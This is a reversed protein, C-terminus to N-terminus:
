FSGKVNFSFIPGILQDTEERFLVPSVDRPGAYVTRTQIRRGNNLNFVSAGVQLGFVDKHEISAYTYIPGEYERGVEYLRYYPLQRGYELGLEYAIDSGPIDHRFELEAYRDRTWSFARDEGTLPDELSTEVLGASVDLKAGKIGVPDLNITTTTSLEWSTAAVPLNGRTELGGPLPIIELKDDIQQYTLRWNTSGWPGLAKKAELRAEWTQPPVLRNNGANDNGDELDVNALFDGFSLQGVRRSLRLSLDLGDQPKWALSLQGKPRWFERTLGDPGTQSLRSFEGGLVLQLSLKPSLSRSHSISAEYRDETM